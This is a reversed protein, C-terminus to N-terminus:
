QEELEAVAVVAPILAEDRGGEVAPEDSRDRSAVLIGLVLFHLFALRRGEQQVMREGVRQAPVEVRARHVALIVLDAGIVAGDELAQRRERALVAVLVIMMVD